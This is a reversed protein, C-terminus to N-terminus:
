GERHKRRLSSMKRNRTIGIHERFPKKFLLSKVPWPIEVSNNQRPKDHESWIEPKPTANLDRLGSVEPRFQSNTGKGEQQAAPHLPVPARRGSFLKATLGWLPPSVRTFCLAFAQYNYPSHFGSHGLAPSTASAVGTSVRTKDPM